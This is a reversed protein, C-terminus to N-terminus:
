SSKDIGDVASSKRSRKFWKLLLLLSGSIAKGTIERVRINDLEDVTADCDLDEAENNFSPAGGNPGVFSESYCTLASNRLPGLTVSRGSAGNQGNGQNNVLASVNTLVIKLFVIVISQLHVLTQTQNILHTM